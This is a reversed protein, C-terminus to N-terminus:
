RSKVEALIAVSLEPYDYGLRLLATMHDSFRDLQKLHSLPLPKLYLGNLQVLRLGAHDFDRKLTDTCYNRLHGLSYDTENLEYIDHMMGLELGLRRNLSKANPVAVFMSGNDTLYKKYQQLLKIPNEVHELVFGMIIADYKTDTEFSEFFREVIISRNNPYKSKFNQIIARSGEVVHHEECYRDFLPVTYGHGIGLELLKGIRGLKKGILGPYENMILYNEIELKPDSFYKSSFSDLNM